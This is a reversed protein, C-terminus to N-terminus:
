FRPGGPSPRPASWGNSRPATSPSATVPTPWRTRGRRACRRPPETLARFRHGAVWNRRGLTTLPPLRGAVQVLRHGRGTVALLLLRAPPSRVLQARRAPAALKPLRLVGTRCATPWLAHRIGPPPPGVGRAKRGAQTTKARPLGGAPVPLPQHASPSVPSKQACRQRPGRARAWSVAQSATTSGPGRWALRVSKLRLQRGPMITDDAGANVAPKLRPQRSLDRKSALLRTPDSLRWLIELISSPRAALSPHVCYTPASPGPLATTRTVSLHQNARLSPISVQRLRGPM